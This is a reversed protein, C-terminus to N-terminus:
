QWWDESKPLLKPSESVPRVEFVADGGKNTEPHKLQIPIRWALGDESRHAKAECILRLLGWDAFPKPGVPAANENKKFSIALGRDIRGKGLSVTDPAFIRSLDPESKTEELSVSVQRFYGVIQREDSGAKTGVFRIEWEAPKGDERTLLTVISAYRSCSKQLIDISGSSDSKWMPNQLETKLDDLVLRLDKLQQLSMPEDSARTLLVPFKVVAKLHRDIGLLLKKKSDNVVKRLTALNAQQNVPANTSASDHDIKEFLARCTALDGAAWPSHEACGDLKQRAFQLYNGVYRTELHESAEQAIDNCAKATLPALPGTYNALGVRFQDVLGKIKSFQRWDDGLDSDAVTTPTNALACANTYIRWRLQYAPSSSATICNTDLEAVARARLNYNSRVNSGAQSALQVLRTEIESILGGNKATLSLQLKIYQVDRVLAKSSAEAANTELRGYLSALNTLPSTVFNTLSRLKSLSADATSKLPLLDRSLVGCADVSNALWPTEKQYYDNLRDSLDTLLNLQFDINTQARLSAIHFKELGNALAPNSALTSGGLLGKPPWQAKSREPTSFTALFTDVV